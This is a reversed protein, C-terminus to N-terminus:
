MKRGFAGKLRLLEFGSLGLPGLIFGCVEVRFGLGLYVRFGVESGVILGALWICGWFGGHCRLVLM